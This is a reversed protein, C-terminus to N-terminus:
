RERGRGGAVQEGRSEWKEGENCGIEWEAPYSVLSLADVVWSGHTLIAPFARPAWWFQLAHGWNEKITHVFHTLNPELRGFMPVCDCPLSIKTMGLQKGRHTTITQGSSVLTPSCAAFVCDAYWAGYMCVHVCSYPYKVACCSCHMIISWRWQLERM